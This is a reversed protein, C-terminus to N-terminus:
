TLTKVYVSLDMDVSKCLALAFEVGMQLSPLTHFSYLLHILLLKLSSSHLKPSSRVQHLIRHPLVLSGHFDCRLM